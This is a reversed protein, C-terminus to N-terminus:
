KGRRKFAYVINAAPLAFTSGALAGGIIYFPLFPAIPKGDNDIEPETILMFGKTTRARIDLETMKDSIDYMISLYAYKTNIGSNNYYKSADSYYRKYKERTDSLAKTYTTILEKAFRSNNAAQITNEIINIGKQPDHVLVSFTIPYTNSPPVFINFDKIEGKPKQKILKKLSENLILKASKADILPRESISGDKNILTGKTGIFKVYAIVKYVPQAIKFLILSIGIGLIAGLILVTINKKLFIFVTNIDVLMNDHEAKTQM